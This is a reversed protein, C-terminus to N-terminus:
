KNFSDLCRKIRDRLNDITGDNLVVKWLPSTSVKEEDLIFDFDLATESSHDFSRMDGELCKKREKLPRGIRVVSGGHHFIAKVENPYRVDTIVFKGEQINHAAFLSEIWVDPDILSRLGDGITQLLQGVTKGYSPIYLAKGERTNITEYEMGVICGVLCKVNTGFAIPTYGAEIFMKAAEDKGSGMKGSIGILQSM